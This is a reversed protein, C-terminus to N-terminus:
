YAPLTPAREAAEELELNDLAHRVEITSQGSGPKEPSPMELRSGGSVLDNMFTRSLSMRVCPRSIRIARMSPPPNPGWRDRSPKAMVGPEGSVLHELSVEEGESNGIAELSVLM